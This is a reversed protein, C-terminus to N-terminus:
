NSTATISAISLRAAIAANIRTRSANSQGEDAVLPSHFTNGLLRRYNLRGAILWHRSLAFDVGM